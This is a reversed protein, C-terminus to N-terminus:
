LIGEEKERTKSFGRKSIDVKTELIEFGKKEM